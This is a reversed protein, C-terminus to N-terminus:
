GLIRPAYLGRVAPYMPRLEIRWGKFLIGRGPDRRSRQPIDAGDVIDFIKISLARAAHRLRGRLPMYYKFNRKIRATADLLHGLLASLTKLTSSFERPM